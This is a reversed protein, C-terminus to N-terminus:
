RSFSAFITDCAGIAALQREYAENLAASDLFHWQKHGEPKGKALWFLHNSLGYRQVQRIYNTKLGAQAALKGLTKANFLFLHCSWYTFDCFAENNYVTLLADDSSPVEVIVQGDDTLIQSLETLISKPDVIHELVHFATIIDYGGHRFKEPIESLSRYVILDKEKYHCTLRNELEVGHTRSVVSEAKLLFNGTGCGFDLLSREPLVPQLFQFRREDDIDTQRIWSQVNVAEEGHMGSNEYFGKKIHDFSSLFVLGCSDCELMKLNSNDRVSGSRQKFKQNGCLYCKVDSM